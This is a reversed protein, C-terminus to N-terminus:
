PAKVASQRKIAFFLVAGGGLIALYFVPQRTVRKVMGLLWDYISGSTSGPKKQGSGDGARRGDNYDGNFATTPYYLNPAGDPTIATGSLGNAFDDGIPLAGFTAWRDRGLWFSIEPLYSALAIARFDAWQDNELWYGDEAMKQTWDLATLSFPLESAREVGFFSGTGDRRGTRSESINRDLGEYVEISPEPVSRLAAPENSQDGTPRGATLPRNGSPELIEGTGQIHPSDLPGIATAIASAAGLATLGIAFIFFTFGQRRKGSSRPVADFRLLKWNLRVM